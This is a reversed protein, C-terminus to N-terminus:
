RHGWVKRASVLLLGTLLPILVSNAVVGVALGGVITSFVSGCDERSMLVASGRKSTIEM